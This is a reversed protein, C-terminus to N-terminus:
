EPGGLFQCDFYGALGQKLPKKNESAGIGFPMPFAIFIANAPSSNV